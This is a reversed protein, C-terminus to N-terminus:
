NAQMRMGGATVFDRLALMQQQAEHETVFPTVWYNSLSVGNTQVERDIQRWLIGLFEAGVTKSIAEFFTGADEPAPLWKCHLDTPTRVILGLRVDAADLGADRMLGLARDAEGMIQGMAAYSNLSLSTKRPRGAKLQRRVRAAASISDEMAKHGERRAATDLAAMNEGKSRGTKESRNESYRALRGLGENRVLSICFNPKESEVELFCTILQGNEGDIRLTGHSNPSHRIELSTEKTGM